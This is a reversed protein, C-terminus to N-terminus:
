SFFGHFINTFNAAIDVFTITFQRGVVNAGDALFASFDKFAHLLGFASAALKGARLGLFVEHRGKSTFGLSAVFIRIKGFDGFTFAIFLDGCDEQLRSAILLFM